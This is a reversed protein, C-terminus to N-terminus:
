NCVGVHKPRKLIRCRAAAAPPARAGRGARGGEGGERRKVAYGDAPHCHRDVFRGAYSVVDRDSDGAPASCPRGMLLLICLCMLSHWHLGGGSSGNGNPLCLADKVCRWLRRGAAQSLAACRRRARLRQTQWFRLPVPRAARCSAWVIGFQTAMPHGQVEPIGERHRARDFWASSNQPLGYVAHLSIAKDGSTM